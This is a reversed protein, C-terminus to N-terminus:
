GFKVNSFDMEPHQSKFKQLIQQQELEKSTPQGMMKQRQETMMKEVTQRTEPDLDQLKSNEPEIKKTDIEPDGVLVRKWWTM